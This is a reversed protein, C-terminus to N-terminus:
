PVPMGPPAYILKNISERSILADINDRNYTLGSVCREVFKRDSCLGSVKESQAHIERDTLGKIKEATQTLERANVKFTTKYINPISPDGNLAIYHKGIQDWMCSMSNAHDILCINGQAHDNTSFRINKENRDVNSIFLDYALTASLVSIITQANPLELMRQLRGEQGNTSSLSTDTNLSYISFPDISIVVPHDFLKVKEHLIGVPAVPLGLKYGLTSAFTECVIQKKDWESLGKDRESLFSAEDQFPKAVGRVNGNNVWYYNGTWQGKSGRKESFPKEIIWHGQQIFRHLFRMDASQM